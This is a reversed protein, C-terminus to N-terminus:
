DNERCKMWVFAPVCLTVVSLQAAIVALTRGSPSLSGVIEFLGWGGVVGLAAIVSLLALGM